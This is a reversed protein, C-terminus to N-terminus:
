DNIEYKELDSEEFAKLDDAKSLNNGCNNGFYMGKKIPSILFGVVVGGLFCSLGLLKKENNNM